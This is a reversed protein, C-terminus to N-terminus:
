PVKKVPPLAPVVGGLGEGETEGQKFLPDNELKPPEQPTAVPHRITQRDEVQPLRQEVPAVGGSRSLGMGGMVGAAILAMACAVHPVYRMYGPLLRDGLQKVAEGTAETPGTLEMLMSNTNFQHKARYTDTMFRLLERRMEIETPQDNRKLVSPLHTRLFSSFLAIHQTATGQPSDPRNKIHKLFWDYLFRMDKELMREMVGITLFEDRLECKAKLVDLGASLHVRDFNGSPDFHVGFLEYADPLELNLGHDAPLSCCDDAEGSVPLSVRPPTEAAFAPMMPTVAM